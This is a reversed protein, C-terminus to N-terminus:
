SSGSPESITLNHKEPTLQCITSPVSSLLNRSASAGSTWLQPCWQRRSRSRNSSFVKLEPTQKKSFLGLRYSSAGTSFGLDIRPLASARANATDNLSVLFIHLSNGNCSPIKTSCYELISGVADKVGDTLSSTMKPPQSVPPTPTETKENSLSHASAGQSAGTSNACQMTAASRGSGAPM